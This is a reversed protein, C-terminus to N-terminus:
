AELNSFDWGSEDWREEGGQEPMEGSQKWRLQATGAGMLESRM